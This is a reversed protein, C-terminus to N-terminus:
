CSVRLRREIQQVVDAVPAETSVVFHDREEQDLFPEYRRQQERYINWDADSLQDGARQRQALRARVTEDSCRCEVFLVPVDFRKALARLADRDARRQYTADVIVGGGAAIREGAEDLMAAYTRASVDAAYLGAEYEGETGAQQRIDPLRKRTADSSIHMFGTRRHLAAAITSKGTGSLGTVAVVCRAYAWAYRYALEFHRVAGARAAARENAPVEEEASKMSDVQGRLYARTCKYFPVLRALDPDEADVSYCEVFHDSLQPQDHFELDMALFAVESAVDIYRFRPNFEICDFIALEDTFCIHQTHLDGHCDRIRGAEQRARFLPAQAEFFARIFSQIADDDAASLISGRFRRANAFNDELVKLIAEREGQATIAASTEADRHFEALRKAVTAIMERTVANHDLLADLMRDDPLQRMHVAYEVAAPDNEDGLRYTNGERCVAAVGHYASAALRRNLRVEEHCFHRRAELTSFDLFSFRVPKKLKFVHDGALLVFSIHTRVVTVSAPRHAYFEPRSMTAIPEPLTM